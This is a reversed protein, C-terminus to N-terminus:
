KVDKTWLPSGFLSSSDRPYRDNDNPIPINKKPNRSRWLDICIGIPLTILVIVIVFESVNLTVGNIESPWTWQHCAYIILASVGAVFTSGVGYKVVPHTVIHKRLDYLLSFM